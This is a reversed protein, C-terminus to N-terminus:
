KSEAVDNNDIAFLLVGQLVRIVKDAPKQLREGEGRAHGNETTERQGVHHLEGLVEVM